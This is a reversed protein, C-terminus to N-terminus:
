KEKKVRKNDNKKPMKGGEKKFRAEATLPDSPCAAKHWRKFAEFEKPAIAWNINVTSM